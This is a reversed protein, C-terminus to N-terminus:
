EVSRGLAHVHHIKHIRQQLTEAQLSRQLDGFGYKHFNSLVLQNIIELSQADSTLLSWYIM